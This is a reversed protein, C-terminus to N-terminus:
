GNRYAWTRGGSGYDTVFVFIDDVADYVLAHFAQTGPEGGQVPTATWTATAPDFTHFTSDLVAGGIVQNVPDYEYGPEQHDPSPGESAIQELTSAGLEDRDLHLAFVQVPSGRLFYYFSDTPPFYTLHNAYGLASVDAGDIGDISAVVERTAPDYLAVGGAGLSVFLESMPDYEAGALNDVFGLSSPDASFSWTGGALDFHAIPGSVDNGVGSCYGGTFARGLLVLENQAPAFAVFDYTHASVPRPYPGGTGSLWAGLADDLNDPTMAECPTPEYLSSWTPTGSLDLAIVSDNMTTSHGGGFALVRFGHSDFTMGSYDTVGICGEEGSPPTCDFPGLDMVFGPQLDAFLPNPEHDPAGTDDGGSEDVGDDADTGPDTDDADDSADSATAGTPSTMTGPADDGADSADTGAGDDQGADISGESASGSSGGCGAVLVVLVFRARANSM